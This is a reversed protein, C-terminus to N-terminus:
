IKTLEELVNDVHGKVKVKRWEKKLIGNEDIIFTSRIVGMYTKGYMKKEGWAGFYGLLEKEPDSLLPFNLSQKEQFKIHSKISDPSVGVINAINSIRNLNDRFNCSEQTCGPTNDKPYFYLVLKKGQFDSISFTKEQGNKDIGQLTFDKVKAELEIM